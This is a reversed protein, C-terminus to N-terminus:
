SELTQRNMTIILTRFHSRIKEPLNKNLVRAKVDDMYLRLLNRKVPHSELTKLSNLTKRILHYNHSVYKLSKADNTENIIACLNKAAQTNGFTCPDVNM